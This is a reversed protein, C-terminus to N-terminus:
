YKPKDINPIEGKYARLDRIQPGHDFIQTLGLLKFVECVAEIMIKASKKVSEPHGLVGENLLQQSHPVDNSM